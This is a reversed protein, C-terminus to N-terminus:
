SVFSKVFRRADELEPDNLLDKSILVENVWAPGKGGISRVFSELEGQENLAIGHEKLKNVLRTFANTAQDAPIYKRGTEKAISWSSSRRLIKEIERKATQPFIRENVGTLINNIEEKIEKTSLEPKKSEIANKVKKWDESIDKWDCGVESCFKRLLTDDNLLDFDTVAIVPIKLGRLSRIVLPIRDKGGTHTFMIDFRSINFGSSEFTADMIAEYFRCDSDGECLIVMQHFLGDFINSYRLLPNSWLENIKKNDLENVITKDPFEIRMEKPDNPVREIRMVRVNKNNTDLIGRLVDSSHTAIFLQRDNRDQSSLMRGILRAQPPHLFAEPEDVLLMNEQGVFSHLLVTAFSRMGDGQIQLEPLKEFREIYSPSFLDEDRELNPRKGVILPVYQGAYPNVILDYGFAEHFLKSIQFEIDKKQQLTHIPHSPPERYLRIQQAQNAQGARTDATLLSSFFPSLSGLSQLDTNWVGRADTEHIRGRSSDYISYYSQRPDPKKLATQDLFEILDSETGEKAISIIKVVPSDNNSSNLKNHIARLAESKGSNNPGVIVVIDNKDLQIEKGDSFTISKIWVRPKM